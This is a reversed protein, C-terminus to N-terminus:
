YKKKDKLGMIEDELYVTEVSPDFKMYSVQTNRKISHVDHYEKDISPDFDEEHIIDASAQGENIFQHQIRVSSIDLVDYWDIGLDGNNYDGLEMDMVKIRNVVDNYGAYDGDLSITYEESLPVSKIANEIERPLLNTDYKNDNNDTEKIKSDEPKNNLTPVQIKYTLDVNSLDITRNSTIPTKDQDKGVRSDSSNSTTAVLHDVAQAYRGCKKHLGRLYFHQQISDQKSQILNQKSMQTAVFKIPEDGPISHLPKVKLLDDDKRSNGTLFMDAFYQKNCNQLNFIRRPGGGLGLLPNGSSSALSNVSSAM